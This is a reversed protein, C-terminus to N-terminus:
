RSKKPALLINQKQLFLKQQAHQQNLNLQTHPLAQSKGIAKSCFRKPRIHERCLTQAKLSTWIFEIFEKFVSKFVQFSSEINQGPTPKSPGQSRLREVAVKKGFIAIPACRHLLGYHLFPTVSVAFARLSSCDKTWLM